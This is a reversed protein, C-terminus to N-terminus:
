MAATRAMNKNDPMIYSMLLFNGVSLTKVQTNLLSMSGLNFIVHGTDTLPTPSFGLPPSSTVFGFSLVPLEADVGPVLEDCHSGVGAPARLM